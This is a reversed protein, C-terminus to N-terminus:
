AFNEFVDRQTSQALGIYRRTTNVDTHNLQKTLERVKSVLQKIYNLLQSFTSAQSIDKKEAM